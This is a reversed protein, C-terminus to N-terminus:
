ARYFKVKGRIRGASSEAEVGRRYCFFPMPTQADIHGACVCQPGCSASTTRQVKHLIGRAVLWTQVDRLLDDDHDAELGLAHNTLKDIFEFDLTGM